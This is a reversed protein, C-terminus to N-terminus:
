VHSPEGPTSDGGSSDNGPQTPNDTGDGPETTAQYEGGAKTWGKVDVAASGSALGSHVTALWRQRPGFPTAEAEWARGM